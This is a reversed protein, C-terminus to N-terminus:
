FEKWPLYEEGCHPCRLLGGIRGQTAEPPSSAEERAQDTPGRPQRGEGAARGIQQQSHESKGEEAGGV